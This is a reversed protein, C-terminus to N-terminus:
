RARFRKFPTECGGRSWEEADGKVNSFCVHLFFIETFYRHIGFKVLFFM